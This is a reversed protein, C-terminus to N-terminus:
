SRQLEWRVRKAEKVCDRKLILCLYWNKDSSKINLNWWRKKKRVEELQRVVKCITSFNLYCNEFLLGKFRTKKRLDRLIRWVAGRHECSWMKFSDEENKRQNSKNNWAMRCTKTLVESIEHLTCKLLCYSFFFLKYFFDYRFQVSFLSNESQAYVKQFNLHWIKCNYSYSM